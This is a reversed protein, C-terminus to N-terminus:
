TNGGAPRDGRVGMTRDVVLSQRFLPHQRVRFPGPLAARAIDALEAPTYAARISAPGDHRTLRHNRWLTASLAQTALLAARSRRLDTVVVGWRAVRSLERLVRVAEPPDLHHLMTNCMAIDLEGDRFPLALADAM